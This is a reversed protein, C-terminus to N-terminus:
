LIQRESNIDLNAPAQWSLTRSGDSGHLRNGGGYTNQMSGRDRPMSFAGVVPQAFVGPSHVQGVYDEAIYVPALGDEDKWMQNELHESYFFEHAKAFSRRNGYMTNMPCVQRGQYQGQSSGMHYERQLGDQRLKAIWEQLYANRRFLCNFVPRGMISWWLANTCLHDFLTSVLRYKLILPYDQHVLQLTTNFTMAAFVIVCSVMMERTENFSSKINRIRWTILAVFALSVWIFVFIAIKFPTALSCIDLAPMYEASASPKLAMTVIGYIIICVIYVLIPLLFRWGRAPLNLYFVHHLAYSRVAIVASVACVGLLVRVWIGFGRCNTFVSGALTVHGNVQTDGVFWLASALFLIVMLLPNKSKLPPYKRNFVVFIVALLNILYIVSLLIVIALDASTRPDLKIHMAEAAAERRQEVAANPFAM